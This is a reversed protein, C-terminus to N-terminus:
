PGAKRRKRGFRLLTVSLGLLAVTAPEPIEGPVGPPISEAPKVQYDGRVPASDSSLVLFWSHDGSYLLEGAFDWVVRLGDLYDDTHAKGGSGDDYSGISVEYLDLPAQGNGFIEFYAVSKDGEYDNIVQYAYIYRGALNLADALAKEDSGESMIAKDYVAYDIRGRLNSGDIFQENYWAGGQWVEDYSSVPLLYPTPMAIAAPVFLTIALLLSTLITKKMVRTEM